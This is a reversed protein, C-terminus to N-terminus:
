AAGAVSLPKSEVSLTLLPSTFNVDVKIEPLLAFYIALLSWPLDFRDKTTSVVDAADRQFDKQIKKFQDSEPNFGGQNRVLTQIQELTNGFDRMAEAWWSIVEHDGLIDERVASSLNAFKTDFGSNGQTKLIDSITTWVGLDTLPKLRATTTPDIDSQLLASMANRGIAEYFDIPLAKGNALFLRESSLADLRIAANLSTADFSTRGDALIAIMQEQKIAEIAALTALEHRMENAKTDAHSIFFEFRFSLTPAGVLAKSGQYAATVMSSTFLLARLKKPDPHLSSTTAKIQDATATDTVILAGSEPSFQVKGTLALNSLDSFQFFNLLHITLNRTTKRKTTYIAKKESVGSGPTVALAAIRSYNGRLAATVASKAEEGTLRSLDLEYLFFTDKEIAQSFETTVGAAFSEEVAAKLAAEVPERREQPLDKLKEVQKPDPSIQGLVATLLDTGAAVVTLGAMVTLDATFKVGRSRSVALRVTNGTDKLVSVNFGGSVKVSFEFDASGSANIKTSDIIPTKITALANNLFEYGASASFTLTGKGEVEFISGVSMAELDEVRVPLTFGAIVARTADVLAADPDCLRYNTIDVEGGAVMGFTFENVTGSAGVTVTAGTEFALYVAGAVPKQDFQDLLDAAADNKVVDISASIGESVKLRSVGAIGFSNAQKASLMFPLAEKPITSIPASQNDRFTAVDFVFKLDGILYKSLTSGSDGNTISVDLGLKDLLDIFAL